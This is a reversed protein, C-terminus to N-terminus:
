PLAVFPGLLAGSGDDEMWKGLGTPIRDPVKQVSVSESFHFSILCFASAVSAANTFCRFLTCQFFSTNKAPEITPFTRTSGFLQLM